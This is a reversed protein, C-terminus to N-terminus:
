TTIQLPIFGQQPNQFPDRNGIIQNKDLYIFSQPPYQIGLEILSLSNIYTRPERVEIAYGMNQGKFYELFITKTVGSFGCTDAWLLELNKHIIKGRTFEGIIKRVPDSSYVVITDVEKKFIARRFEWKKIGNFLKEAYEPKVSLLARM